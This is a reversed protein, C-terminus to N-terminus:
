SLVSLTLDLANLLLALISTGLGAVLLLGPQALGIVVRRLEPRDQLFKEPVKSHAPAQRWGRLRGLFWACRIILALWLVSVVLPFAALLLQFGYGTVQREDAASLSQITTSISASLVVSFAWIVFALVLGLFRVFFHSLVSESTPKLHRRPTAHLVTVTALLTPLAALGVLLYWIWGALEAFEDVVILVAWSGTWIWGTRLPSRVLWGPLWGDPATTNSPPVGRNLWSAAPRNASAPGSSRVTLSDSEARGTAAGGTRRRGHGGGHGAAGDDDVGDDGAAGGDDAGGHGAAGGDVARESVAHDENM